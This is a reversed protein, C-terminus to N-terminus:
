PRNEPGLLGAPPADQPQRLGALAMDVALDETVERLLRAVGEDGAVALAHLAPRGLFAADAGLALATLVDTGSRLGGDVYVPLRGAVTRAVYPLAHATSVARDLQRGGHNSVWVADAGYGVAAEADDPHLVGKVVVPLGSREKLWAIDPAGLSRTWHNAGTSLNTRHWSLDIGEFDEDGVDYKPGPFPTDVTLVLASAGAGAADDLLAAIEAREDPVYVQLWWPGAQAGIEAFTHGANSSVVHLAGAEKAGRAMALEGDPHVARQMSSPAVAIPTSVASGLLTTATDVASVDRLTRPWLRHDRWAGTAEDRTVAERSGAALYAWVAPPLLARAREPLAELWERGGTM